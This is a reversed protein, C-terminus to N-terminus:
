EYIYTEVKDTDNAIGSYVMANAAAKQTTRLVKLVYDIDANVKNKGQYVVIHHM